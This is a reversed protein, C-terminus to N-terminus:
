VYGHAGATRKERSAGEMVTMAHGLV